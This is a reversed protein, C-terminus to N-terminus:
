KRLKAFPNNFPEPPKRPAPQPRAGGKQPQSPQQPKPSPAPPASAQKISLGIRRRELDVKIVRVKCREGVKVVEAPDKVFRHALESVHVLGDQHVGIDVFAGFATVNTVVGSLLMGEKVHELATVNPDFGVEEFQARPDRGPKELEDLIDKLTLLGRREDVYKSADIRKSLAGSGVLESLAVGLDRAM